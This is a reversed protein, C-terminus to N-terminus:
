SYMYFKNADVSSVTIALSSLRQGKNMKEKGEESM